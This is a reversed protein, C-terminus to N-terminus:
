QMAEGQALKGILYEEVMVFVTAPHQPGLFGDTAEGGVHDLISEGGPHEDVYETVDYVKMDGSRKDKVIIWADDRKNHQSVEERTYVKFERVGKSRKPVTAPAESQRKRGGATAILCCVALLVIAIVAVFLEM